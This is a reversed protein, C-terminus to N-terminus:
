PLKRKIEWDLRANQYTVIEVERDNLIQLIYETMEEDMSTTTSIRPDERVRQIAILLRSASLERKVKRLELELEHVRGQLRAQSVIFAERERQEFPKRSLTVRKPM